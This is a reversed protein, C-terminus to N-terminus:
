GGFCRKPTGRRGGTVRTIHFPVIQGRDIRCPNYPPNDVAESCRNPQINIRIFIDWVLLHGARGLPELLLAKPEEVVEVLQGEVGLVLAARCLRHEEALVGSSTRGVDSVICTCLVGM